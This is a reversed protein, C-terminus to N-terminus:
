PGLVGIPIVYVDEETLYYAAEGAGVIVACFVPAPNRAAPNAAVKRRLRNLSRVGGEVGNEGLKIELAAWRGDRLEIIADCELGDSDRYYHLPMHGAGPLAQAYVALDHMCLSEFLIGLLQGDALLREPTIGLLGAPLSPDAFYRKPKIRLRSKSRIPADWGSINEILFLSGFADIYESVRQIMNNTVTESSFVDQAITRLTAATGVNRALSDLVRAALASSLGRKPISVQLIADVYEEVYEDSAKTIDGMLAPWGGHCVMRAISELTEHASVLNFRGQFLDALSVQGASVGLEFLTMTRMRMRAIRGAGSHSVEEKNPTSSGTLIFLGSEGNSEDVSDRIADWVAPVEQWEDIVHPRDGLLAVTPDAQIVRKVAARGVRTVSEAHALSIWTKGSWMTGSVEVAGFLDLLHVLEADQIRPIYGQPMLTSM